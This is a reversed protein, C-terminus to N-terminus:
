IVLCLEHITFVHIHTHRYTTRNYNLIKMKRIHVYPRISPTKSILFSNSNLISFHSKGTFFCYLFFYIFESWNLIFYKFDLYKALFYHFETEINYYEVNRLNIFQLWELYWCGMRKKAWKCWSWKSIIWKSFAYAIGYQMRVFNETKKKKWTKLIRLEQTHTHTCIM